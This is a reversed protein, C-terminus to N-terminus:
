TRVCMCVCVRVGKGDMLILHEESGANASM